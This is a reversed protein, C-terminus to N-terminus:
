QYSINMTAIASFAGGNLEKIKLKYPVATFTFQGSEKRLGDLGRIIEYGDGGIRLPYSSDVNDGQYLAIGLISENAGTTNLVNDEAGPLVNGNIKIYPTNQHYYCKLNVKKTVAHKHGDIENLPIKGFSVQIDENASNIECPPVIITGTIKIGVDANVYQISSFISIIVSLLKIAYYKRKM